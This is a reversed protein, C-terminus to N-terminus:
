WSVLVPRGGVSDNVLEHWNLIRVPYAKAEGNLSVGLVRDADKLKGGVEEASVFRPRVLAPIADRPVSVILESLPVRHRTVDFPQRGPGAPQLRREPEVIVAQALCNRVTAIGSVLCSVLLMSSLLDRM